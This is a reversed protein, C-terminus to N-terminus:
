AEAIRTATIVMNEYTIMAVENNGAQIEKLAPILFVSRLFEFSDDGRHKLAEVIGPAIKYYHRVLKARDSDDMMYTDRFHRLLTLEECDDPLGRAECIATTIFCGGGKKQQSAVVAQFNSNYGAQTQLSALTTNATNVAALAAGNSQGVQTQATNIIGTLFGQNTTNNKALFNLANNQFAAVTSLPLDFNFGGNIATGQGASLVLQPASYSIGGSYQESSSTINAM